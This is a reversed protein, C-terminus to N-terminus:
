DVSVEGALVRRYDDYNKRLLAPTDLEYPCKTKCVGCNICQEIKAMEAQM